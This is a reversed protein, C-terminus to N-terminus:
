IRESETSKDTFHSNFFQEQPHERTAQHNPKWAKVATAWTCNRTPSRLDRLGSLMALFFLFLFQEQLTFKILIDDLIPFSEINKLNDNM